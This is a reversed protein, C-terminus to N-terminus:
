VYINGYLDSKKFLAIILEILAIIAPIGTWCFCVYVIGWVFKGGYFKHGGLGGLFFALLCYALKNVAKKGPPTMYYPNPYLEGDEIKNIKRWFVEDNKEYIIVEDGVSPKFTFKEHPYDSTTGNDFKLRVETETILVVKGM